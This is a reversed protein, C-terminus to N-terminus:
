WSKPISSQWQIDEKNERGNAAAAASGEARLFRDAEISFGGVQFKLLDRALLRIM